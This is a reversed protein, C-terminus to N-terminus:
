RQQERLEDVFIKLQRYLENSIRKAEDLVRSIDDEMQNNVYYRLNKRLSDLDDMLYSQYLRGIEVGARVANLQVKYSAIQLREEFTFESKFRNYYDINFLTYREHAHQWDAATFFKASETVEDVFGKYQELYQQKSHPSYSTFLALLIIFQGVNTM